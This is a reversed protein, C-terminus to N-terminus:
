IIFIREIGTHRLGKNNNNNNNCYNYPIILTIIKLINKNINSQNCIDTPSTKKFFFVFSFFSDNINAIIIIIIIM